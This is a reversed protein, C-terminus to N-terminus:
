MCMVVLAPCSHVTRLVAPICPGSCPPGMVADSHSNSESDIVCWWAVMMRRTPCACWAIMMKHSQLQTLSISFFPNHYCASICTSSVLHRYCSSTDDFECSSSLMVIHRYFDCSSSLMVIHMDFNFLRVCLKLWLIIIAHRHSSSLMTLKGYFLM